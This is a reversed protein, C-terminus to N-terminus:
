RGRDGCKPWCARVGPGGWQRLMCLAVRGPRGLSYGCYDGREAEQLYDRAKDAQVFQPVDPFLVLQQLQSLAAEHASHEQRGSERTQESRRRRRTAKGDSAEMYAVARHVSTTVLVASHRNRVCTRRCSAPM